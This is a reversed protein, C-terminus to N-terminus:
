KELLQQGLGQQLGHYRLKALELEPYYDEVAM